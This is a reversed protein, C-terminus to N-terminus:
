FPGNLFFYPPPTPKLPCGSKAMQWFSHMWIEDIKWLPTGLIENFHAIILFVQYISTNLFFTNLPHPPPICIKGVKPSPVWIRSIRLCPYGYKRLHFNFLMLGGLLTKQITKQLCIQTQLGGESTQCFICPVPSPPNLCFKNNKESTIDYTYEFKLYTYVDPVPTSFLPCTSDIEKILHNCYFM